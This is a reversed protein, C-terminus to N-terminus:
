HLIGAKSGGQQGRRAALDRLESTGEGIGLAGEKCAWCFRLQMAGLGAHSTVTRDASRQIEAQLDSLATPDQKATHVACGALEAFLRQQTPVYGWVSM